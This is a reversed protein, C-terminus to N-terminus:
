LKVKERVEEVYSIDNTMVSVDDFVISYSDKKIANAFDRFTNFGQINEVTRIHGSKMFFNVKLIKSM